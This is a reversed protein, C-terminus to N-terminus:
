SLFTVCINVYKSTQQSRQTRKFCRDLGDVTYFLGISETHYLCALKVMMINCLLSIWHVIPANFAAVDEIDAERKHSGKGVYRTAYFPEM